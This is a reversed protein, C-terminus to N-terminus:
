DLNISRLRLSNAIVCFSSLSMAVAAFAPSLMLGFLPYFIGTALAVGIVNYVFAFFLNQKINRMTARGLKIARLIGRLDGRVLTIGATEIAVDAGTGMAIGLDAHALAIADNIGDGAMAVRKGASRIAEIVNAKESPLTESFIQKESFGLKKGVIQANSDSDGTLLIPELGAKRMAVLSQAAEDKIPDTVTIAGLLKNARGVLIDPSATTTNVDVGHETMFRWSGVCVQEGNLQGSLGRGPHVKFDDAATPQISHEHAEALIARAIPHLSHLELSAATALVDEETFGPNTRVREVKPTGATITGTKDLAVVEIGGATELITANRVLIGSRAGRGTAVMISMPTALGLACPCAIILVSISNVIATPLKSAPSGFIMWGVFTAVAVALVAPVFYSSARDALRQIPAQSRQAEAVLRIIQSLITQEGVREVQMLFSGDANITGGTVTDGSQKPIPFAEGTLMSENVSGLGSLVKGDTPVKEGARVRLTDGVVIDESAIEVEQGGSTLRVARNPTLSLLDRIAGGARNRARLELVQGFLVLTTIVAATEFYTPYQPFFCAFVSFGYSIATGAGILTFMNPSRNKLSDMARQFIPTGAWLVVPSALAFEILSSHTGSMGFVVTPVAFVAAVQLRRTMDKLEGGDDVMGRVPLVAELAMGCKPCSGPRDKAIEPHMPCTFQSTLVTGEMSFDASAPDYNPNLYKEPASRFHEKCGSRCFYYREGRYELSHQARAEDVEM